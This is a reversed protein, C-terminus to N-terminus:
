RAPRHRRQGAGAAPLRDLARHPLRRQGRGEADGSPHPRQAGHGLRLGQAHGLARAGDDTGWGWTEYVVWLPIHAFLVVPTSATKGKLDDALWKLQDEGLSGMGGAKLNKVNVLGVFHM